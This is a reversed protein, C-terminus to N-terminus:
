NLLYNISIRQLPPPTIIMIPQHILNPTQPQTVSVFTNHPMFTTDNLKHEKIIRPNPKRIGTRYDENRNYDTISKCKQCPYVFKKTLTFKNRPKSKGCRVCILPKQPDNFNGMNLVRSIALCRKCSNTVQGKRINVTRFKSFDLNEKCIVCCKTSDAM